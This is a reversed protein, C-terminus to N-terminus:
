KKNKVFILAIMAPILLNFIWTTFSAFAAPISGMGVYSFVSVAISERVIVKGFFLSPTLTILFFIVAILSLLTLNIKEGFANLALAYQAIFVLYRLLSLFLIKFRSPGKEMQIFLSQLKTIPVNKLIKDGFFFLMLMSLSIFWILYIAWNKVEFLKPIFLLAVIGFLISILFQSFNAVLSHGTIKWRKSKEYYFMRGLFNGSLSPTLFSSVIGSAFATANNSNDKEEIAILIEKWKKWEFFWNLPTLLLCGILSFYNVIQFGSFDISDRREVLLYIFFCFLIGKLFFSLFSRFYTTKTM